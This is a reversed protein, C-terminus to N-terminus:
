SLNLVRLSRGLGLRDRPVPPAGTPTFVIAEGSHRWFSVLGNSKPDLAPNPGWHGRWRRWINSPRGVQHWCRRRHVVMQPHGNFVM